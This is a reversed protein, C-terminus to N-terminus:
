RPQGHVIEGDNWQPDDELLARFEQFWEAQAPRQANELYAEKSTHAAAIIYENNGADLRYTWATVFGDPPNALFGETLKDFEAEKGPKVRFRFVTGYM